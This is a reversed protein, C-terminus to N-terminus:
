STPLSSQSKKYFARWFKRLLKYLRPLRSRLLWLIKHKLYYNVRIGYRFVFDDAKKHAVIEAPHKLPFEIPTIPLNARIDYPDTMGHSSEEDFGINAVLNNSPAISLSHLAWRDLIWQGPWADITGTYYRDLLAEYYDAREANGLVRQLLGDKKWQPWQKMNVDYHQWARRWTAWGWTMDINAFYYSDACKFKPDRVALNTGNINTVKPEYRYKELLEQCFRFFTQEPLCDDELIIAEEVHQFVWDIGSAINTKCGLNTEAYKKFVQCPWDVGNDIIARVAKVKLREAENRGEDSLVFLKEPRAKKIENFVRQIKEPRIFAVLVVPTTLKFDDPM